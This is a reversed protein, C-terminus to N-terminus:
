RDLWSKFLKVKDRSVVIEEHQNGTLNIKLRSNSYSIIDLIAQYNLYYNRNVRFFDVPDLLSELKDLSYDILYKRKDKTAAYTGKNESKFYMIEQATLSKIKDGVKVIFRSKYPGSIMEIAKELGPKTHEATRLRHYKQIAQKLEEKDIPKLLYDISNVKFAKIAYEDYATTFIIPCTIEIVEFIEFCLGDGLEIDLFILDPKPNKLFWKIANKVSDIKDVVEIDLSTLLGQLYEQALIEDEIIIVKM